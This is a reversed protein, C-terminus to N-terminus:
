SSTSYFLHMHIKIWKDQTSWHFVLFVYKGYPTNPSTKNILFIITWNGDYTSSFGLRYITTFCIILAAPHDFTHLWKHAVYIQCSLSTVSWFPRHCVLFYKTTKYAMIFRDRHLCHNSHLRRKCSATFNTGVDHWDSSFCLSLIYNCYVSIWPWWRTRHTGGQDETLTDIIVSQLLHHVLQWVVSVAQFVTLVVM